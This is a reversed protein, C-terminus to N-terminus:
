IVILILWLELGFSFPTLIRKVGGECWRDRVEIVQKRLEAEGYEIGVLVRRDMPISVGSIWEQKDVILEVTKYRKNRKKDYRYRGGVLQYGYEKLFQKTGYQGPTPTTRIDM